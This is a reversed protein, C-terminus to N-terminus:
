KGGRCNKQAEKFIFNACAECLLYGILVSRERYLFANIAVAAEGKMKIVGVPHVMCGPCLNGEYFWFSQVADGFQVKAQWFFTELLENIADKAGKEAENYQRSQM